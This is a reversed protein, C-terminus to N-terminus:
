PLASRKRALKLDAALYLRHYNNSCINVSYKKYDHVMNM